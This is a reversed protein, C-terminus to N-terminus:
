LRAMIPRMTLHCSEQTVTSLITQRQLHFNIFAQWASSLISQYNSDIECLKSYFVSTNPAKPNLTKPEDTYYGPLLGLCYHAPLLVEDISHFGGAVIYAQIAALFM